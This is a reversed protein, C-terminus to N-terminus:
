CKERPHDTNWPWAPISAINYPGPAVEGLPHHHVRDQCGWKHSPFCQNWFDRESTNPYSLLYTKAELGERSAKSASSSRELGKGVRSLAVRQQPLGSCPEGNAAGSQRGEKAAQFCCSTCGSSSGSSGWKAVTTEVIELLYVEQLTGLNINRGLSEWCM